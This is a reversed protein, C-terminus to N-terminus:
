TKNRFTSFLKTSRGKIQLPPLPCLPAKILAQFITIKAGVTTRVTTFIKYSVTKGRWKQLITLTPTTVPTIHTLFGTKSHGEIVVSPDFVQSGQIPLPVTIANKKSYSQQTPRIKAIILPPYSRLLSACIMTLRHVDVEQPTSDYCGRVCGESEWDNLTFM